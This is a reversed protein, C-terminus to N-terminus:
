SSACTAEPLLLGRLAAPLDAESPADRLLPGLPVSSHTQWFLVNRVRGGQVLGLAAAFAKATYAPDLTLGEASGQAQARESERTPRSYGPGLYGPELRLRAVAGAVLRPALRALKGLQLAALARAVPRRDSACVGVVQVPLGRLALGAALGVATGASALAVVLVEPLPLLGRAIALALEDIAEIHGRLSATSSGGLPLLLDGRRWLRWLARPVELGRAAIVEVGLGVIGRLVEAAHDTRAQPSLVAAVKLGRERAGIATALVQHSGAPAFLLLRRAGRREAEDLLYPLKRMKNGGYGRGHLDDRKVWLACGATGLNALPEIPTPLHLM